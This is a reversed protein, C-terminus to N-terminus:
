GKFKIPRFLERSKIVQGGLADDVLYRMLQKAKLYEEKQWTSGNVIDLTSILSIAKGSIIFVSGLNSSAKGVGEFGQQSLFKYGQDKQIKHGYIDHEFDPLLGLESLLLYEFKRLCRQLDQGEALQDLCDVYNSFVGPSPENDPVLKLVLENLYYASFLYNARLKYPQSPVDVSRLTKISSRGSWSLLLAQFPQLLASWASGKRLGGKAILTLRGFNLSFVDVLLSSEQYPRRNLVYVAQQEEIMSM